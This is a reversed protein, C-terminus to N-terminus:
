KELYCYSQVLDHKMILKHCLATRLKECTANSEQSRKWASLMEYCQEYVDHSKNMEIQDLLADKLGLLRGIM